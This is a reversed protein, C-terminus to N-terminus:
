HNKTVTCAGEERGMAGRERERERSRMVTHGRHCWLRQGAAEVHGPRPRGPGGYRRAGWGRDMSGAVVAAPRQRGQRVGVEGAEPEGQGWSRRGRGKTTLALSSDQMYSIPIHPGSNCMTYSDANNLFNTHCMTYSSANNLFNTHILKPYSFSKM